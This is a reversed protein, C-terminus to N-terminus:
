NELLSARNFIFSNSQHLLDKMPQIGEKDSLSCRWDVSLRSDMICHVDNKTMLLSYIYHCESPTAVYSVLRWCLSAATHPKHSTHPKFGIEKVFREWWLGDEPRLVSEVSKMPLSNRRLMKTKLHVRRLRGLLMLPPRFHGDSPVYTRVDTRGCFTKGIEIFNPTYISTLSQHVITHWIVLDLTLSLTVPSRFNRFNCKEFNIKEAM